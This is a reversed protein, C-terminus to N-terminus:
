VIDYAKVRLGGAVNHLLGLKVRHKAEVWQRQYVQLEVGSNFGREFLASWVLGGWVLAHHHVRPLFLSAEAGGEILDQVVPVYLVRLQEGEVAPYIKVGANTVTYCKTAQGLAEVDMAEALSISKMVRGQSDTVKMVRYPANPLTAIGNAATTLTELKQMAPPLYAVVEDMLEHYAANLWGLAKSQVEGDGASQHCLEVIRDRIDNVNM